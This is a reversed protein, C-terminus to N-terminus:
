IEEGRGQPAGNKHEARTGAGAGRAPARLGSGGPTEGEPAGGGGPKLPRGARNCQDKGNEPSARVRSTPKLPLARGDDLAGALGHRLAAATPPNSAAPEATSCGTSSVTLSAMPHEKPHKKSRGTSSVMLRAM